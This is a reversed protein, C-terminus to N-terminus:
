VVLPLARSNWLDLSNQQDHSLTPQHSKEAPSPLFNQRDSIRSIRGFGDDTQILALRSRCPILKSVFTGPRFPFFFAPLATASQQSPEARRQPPPRSVPRDLVIIDLTPQRIILHLRSPSSPLPPPLHPPLSPLQLLSSFVTTIGWVWPLM